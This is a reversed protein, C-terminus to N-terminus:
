QFYWIGNERDKQIKELKQLRRRERAKANIEDKKEEYRAKAAAKRDDRHDRYYSANYNRLANKDKTPM